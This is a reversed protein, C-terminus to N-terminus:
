ERRVPGVAIGYRKRMFVCAMRRGSWLEHEGRGIETFGNALYFGVAGLAADVDIAAAGSAVAAAEARTFLASGIGSRVAAGRVYVATRHQGAVIRHTAFGLVARQGDREGIAVFFANGQEISERYRPGNVRAAWDQVIEAAYFQAGITLISDLHAAAIGDADEPTARRIEFPPSAIRHSADVDTM